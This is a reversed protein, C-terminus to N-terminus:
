DNLKARLSMLIKKERRSIQVQTTGLIKATQTQTKSQFYRLTILTQDYEGLESIAKKLSLRESVEEECSSVPISLEFEEDDEDRLSLSLPLHSSALADTVAEKSENLLTCLEQVTLENGTKKINEENLRSIKLSLEKLKRSVKVSGGDRWIRKIEGLIVPVAYTSLKFGKSEDFGDIAKILGICGASVIDEYDVGRGTFKKAISHVLGLNQSIKEKRQEYTM